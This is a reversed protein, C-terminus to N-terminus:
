LVGAGELCFKVALGVLVLGGLLEARRGIWAGIRRGLRMGALTMLGAVVGIVLVAPFIPSEVAALGVGVALADLSTAVSLGILSWGRTPDAVRPREGAAASARVMRGGVIALIAAAIWPGYARAPGLLLGGAAWGAIPMLSQFLGCHFALRFVQRGGSWRAGVGLAVSFADTGLGISVLALEVGTM